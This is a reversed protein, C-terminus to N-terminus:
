LTKAANLTLKINNWMEESSHDWNFESSRKLGADILRNRLQVSESVHMMAEATAKINGHEVILAADGAVEPLSTINATIVPVGSQMAELIPIGFGEYHPIYVLALASAMLRHLDNEEVSGTLIIDKKFPHVTLTEEMENTWWTKKGAIVLKVHSAHQKRFLEYAHLLGSINKRPHISGVFLFYPRGGSFHKKVELQDDYEMPKFADIAANHVIGIKEVAIHYTDIIDKKSFESVTVIRTAKRAFQSFRNRYYKAVPRPLWEPHHEFNLDHIVSIQPVYSKMPLIGDPSIFLDLKSKKIKKKLQKNFYTDFVYVHKTPPYVRVANVNGAYIYREEPKSDFFFVFEHEPHQQVLRKFIEHTFRGIGDLKDGKLLRTNVGIRLRM